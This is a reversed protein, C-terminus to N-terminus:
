EPPTVYGNDDIDMSSEGDSHDEVPEGGDQEPTLNPSMNASMELIYKLCGLVKRTDGQAAEFRRSQKLVGDHTITVFIYSYGDSVVGCVTADRRQRQLRSQHISALYVVLEPLARTLNFATKAEVVLLLSQFRRKPLKKM